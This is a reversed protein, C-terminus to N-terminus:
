RKSNEEYKVPTKLYTVRFLQTDFKSIFNLSVEACACIFIIKYKLGYRIWYKIYKHKLQHISNRSSKTLNESLSILNAQFKQISYVFLM